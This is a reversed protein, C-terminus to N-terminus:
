SALDPWLRHKLELLEQLTAFRDDPTKRLLPAYQLDDLGLQSGKIANYLAEIQGPPIDTQHPTAEAGQELTAIRNSLATYEGQLDRAAKSDTKEANLHARFKEELDELDCLIHWHHSDQFLEPLPGANAAAVRM